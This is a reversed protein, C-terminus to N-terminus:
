CLSAEALTKMSRSNPTESECVVDNLANILDALSQLEVNKELIHSKLEIPVSEFEYRIKESVYSM